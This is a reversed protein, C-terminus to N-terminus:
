DLPQYTFTQVNAKMLKMSQRSLHSTPSFSIPAMIHTEFNKLQDLQKITCAWTLAKGCRNMAELLARAGSYGTMTYRNARKFDDDNLLRRAREFFARVEPSDDASVYDVLYVNKAATGMMQLTASSQRGIWSLGVPIDMQLRELEKVMAVNESLIGGAFLVEVGARQAALIEASFDRTGRRYTTSYVVNLNLAKRAVEFGERLQLGVEDDATITAWKKNPFRKDMLRGIQEATDNHTAGTMYINPIVPEFFQDPFSLATLVPIGLQKLMPMLALSGANGSTATLAFVKDTFMLKRGSQISRAVVYGDDESILRVRRGHLGGAANVEAIAMKHGSSLGLSGVSAAGTLPLVEGLVIETDTVGQQQAAGILPLAALGIVAAARFIHKFM